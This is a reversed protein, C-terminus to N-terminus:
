GWNQNPAHLPQGTSDNNRPTWWGYGADPFYGYTQHHSQFALGIQKLNNACQIRSAAERAM